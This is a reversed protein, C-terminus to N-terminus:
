SSWRSCGKGGKGSGRVGHRGRVIEAPDGRLETWEVHGDRHDRPHGGGSRRYGTRGHIGRRDGTWGHRGAVPLGLLALATPALDINGTPVTSRVGQKIAPGHLIFTTRVDYPSLTGHSALGPEMVEGPSASSTRPARGTVPRSSTPPGSTIGPSRPSPWRGTSRGKHRRPTREGRSSRASGTPRRSCGYSKVFAIKM